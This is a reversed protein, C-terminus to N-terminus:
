RLLEGPTKNMLYTRFEITGHKSKKEQQVVSQEPLEGERERERTRQQSGKREKERQREREMDRETKKERTRAKM